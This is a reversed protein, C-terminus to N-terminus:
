DMIFKLHSREIKASIVSINKSLNSIQDETRKEESQLSSIKEEIRKVIDQNKEINKIINESKEQEKELEKIKKRIKILVDEYYQLDQQIPTLKKNANEIINKRYEETIKQFCSNCTDSEPLSTKISETESKKKAVLSIGNAEKARIDSLDKKIENIQRYPTNIANYFGEKAADLSDKNLMLNKKISVLRNQEENLQSSFRNSERSLEDINRKQQTAKNQLEIDTSNLSSRLEDLFQRKKSLIEEIENELSFQKEQIQKSIETLEQQTKIKNNEPDGLMNINAQINEIERKVPKLKENAIKELKSYVALNMPEKLIEKRTKPDKVSSLGTLDAQRFLISHTFAKHTIKILERLKKDTASPTREGISEWNDTFQYLRFDGTGKNTRHRYIRYISNNLEFDFEVIAKKKGDRVIKDLNTSHVENFLVWEIASFITTKGVGNSM